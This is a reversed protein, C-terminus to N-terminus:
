PLLFLLHYTVTSTRATLPDCGQSDSLYMNYLCFVQLATCDQECFLGVCSEVGWFRRSQM